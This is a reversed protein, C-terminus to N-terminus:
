GCLAQVSSLWEDCSERTTMIFRANPYRRLLTPYLMWWPNDSLAGCVETDHRLSKGEDSHYAKQPSLFGEVKGLQVASSWKCVKHGTWSLAIHLSTTGTKIMGLNIIPSSSSLPEFTDPLLERAESANSGDLIRTCARQAEEGWVADKVGAALMQLTYLKDVDM